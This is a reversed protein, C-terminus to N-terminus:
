AARRGSGDQKDAGQQALQLGCAVSRVEAIRARLTNRQDLSTRLMRRTEDLLRLRRICEHMSFRARLDRAFPAQSSKM